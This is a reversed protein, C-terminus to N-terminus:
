LSPVSSRWIWRRIAIADITVGRRKLELLLPAEAACPVCWSAFINILGPKGQFDSSALGRGGSGTRVDPLNFAPLPKGILMSPLIKPDRGLGIAMVAAPGRRARAAVVVLEGSSGAATVVGWGAWAVVVPLLYLLLAHVSRPDTLRM